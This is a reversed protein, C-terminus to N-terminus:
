SFESIRSLATKIKALDSEATKRDPILELYFKDSDNNTKQIDSYYCNLAKEFLPIDPQLENLMHPKELGEKIRSVSQDILPGTKMAEQQVIQAFMAADKLEPSRGIAKLRKKYHNLARLVIEYGGEDKLYIGGLWVRSMTKNETPQKIVTFKILSELVHSNRYCV